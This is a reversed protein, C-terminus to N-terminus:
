ADIIPNIGDGVMGFVHTVDWDILAQVLVDATTSSEDVQKPIQPVVDPATETRIQGSLEAAATGIAAVSQFFNRRGISTQKYNNMGNVPLFFRALNAQHRVINGTRFRFM